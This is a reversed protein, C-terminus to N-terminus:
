VEPLQLYEEFEMAIYGQYDVKQLIKAIRKYDLDLTYWEGGGFYTMAQVFKTYPAIAELKDSPDKFFSGTDMFAELWPSEISKVIQLQRVFTLRAPISKTLSEM